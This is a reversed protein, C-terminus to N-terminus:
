ILEPQPTKQKFLPIPFRSDPIPFRSDPIPFRLIPLPAIELLKKILLIICRIISYPLKLSFSYGM